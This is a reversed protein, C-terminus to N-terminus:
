AWPPRRLENASTTTNNAGEGEEGRAVAVRAWRDRSSSSSRVVAHSRDATSATSRRMVRCPVSALYRSGTGAQQTQESRKDGRLNALAQVARLLHRFLLALCLAGVLSERRAPPSLLVAALLHTKGHLNSSHAPPAPM